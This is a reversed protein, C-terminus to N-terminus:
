VNFLMINKGKLYVKSSNMYNIKVKPGLEKKKLLESKAKNWHSIINYLKKNYLKIKKWGPNHCINM